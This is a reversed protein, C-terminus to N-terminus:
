FRTTDREVWERERARVRVREIRKRIETCIGNIWQRHLQNVKRMRVPAMRTLQHGILPLNIEIKSKVPLIWLYIWYNIMINIDKLCMWVMIALCSRCFSSLPLNRHIVPTCGLYSQCLFWVKLMKQYAVHQRDRKLWWDKFACILEKNFNNIGLIMSWTYAM